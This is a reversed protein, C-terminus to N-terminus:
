SDIAELERSLRAIAKRFAKLSRRAVEVPDGGLDRSLEDLVHEAVVREEPGGVSAVDLARVVHDNRTPSM